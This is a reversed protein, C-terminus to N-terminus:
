SIDRLFACITHRGNLALAHLSLAVPSPTNAKLRTSMAIAGNSLRSVIDPWDSADPENVCDFLTTLISAGCQQFLRKAAANHRDIMGEPTLWLIADEAVDLALDAM